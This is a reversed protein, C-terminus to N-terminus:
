TKDSEASNTPERLPLDSDSSNVDVAVPNRRLGRTAQSRRQRSTSRGRVRALLRGLTISPRAHGMQRSVTVVDAGQRVLHSGFTHRLDHLTLNPQGDLTSAPEIPRRRSAASRSTATTSRCHRREDRIRLGARRALGRRFAHRRHERLFRRSNRCSFLTAGLM